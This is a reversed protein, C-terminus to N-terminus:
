EIIRNTFSSLQHSKVYENDKPYPKCKLQFIDKCFPYDYTIGLNYNQIIKGVLGENPGIVPKGFLAAYGLVGSSLNTILYPILIIDSTYVLDYLFEYSCFEDYVIINANKRAQELLPYFEKRLSEKQKGAIIFVKGQMSKPSSNIIANLIDLTGKRKDLGGFHLYINDQYNINLTKRLCTPKHENLNPVPDPIYKFKATKYIENLKNSSEFDNLVFVTDILKSKSLLWFRIKEALLRFKSMKSQEYLYIKYMIGCVKVNNPLMFIIFPIFQMLMTLIVKQPRIIKVYNILIRSVNVGLKLHSKENLMIDYKKDIYVFTVNDSKPWQYKDKIKKFYLPVLFVYEINKREISSIYYHHLYELHHGSLCPEFILIKM